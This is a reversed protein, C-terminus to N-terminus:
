VAKLQAVSPMANEDGQVEAFEKRWLRVIANENDTTSQLGDAFFFDVVFSDFLTLWRRRLNVALTQV